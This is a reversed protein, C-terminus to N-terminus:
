EAEDMRLPRIECNSMREVQSIDVHRHEAQLFRLFLGHSIVLIARHPYNERAFQLFTRARLRLHEVSEADPPITVRHTGDVTKGTAAGWDRERLLTTFLVSPPAAHTARALEDQVIAATDRCRQLDSSVIAAIPMKAVARAAERAQRRGRDTLHGPLTGQLIHSLNEETEGHRLLHLLTM